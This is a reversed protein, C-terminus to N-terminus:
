ITGTENQEGELIKVAGIFRLFSLAKPTHMVWQDKLKETKLRKLTYEEDIIGTEFLRICQYVRDDAVPGIHLDMQHYNNLGKRQNVVFSLWKSDARKFEIFNLCKLSVDDFEYVCVFGANVNNRKMKIKAWREAQDFSSTMYFGKEFDLFSSSERIEPNEVLDTSGHFLIM